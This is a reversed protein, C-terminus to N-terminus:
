NIGAVGSYSQYNYGFGYSNANRNYCLIYIYILVAILEAVLYPAAFSKFKSIVFELSHKGANETDYNRKVVSSVMLFGSVIFFFHVSIWGLTPPLSFRTNEGIFVSTHHIFVFISFLLRLADIEYNRQKVVVNSRDVLATNNEAM